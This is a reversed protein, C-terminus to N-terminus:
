RAVDPPRSFGLGAPQYPEVVRVPTGPEDLGLAQRLKHVMSVHIGTQFGGSFDVPLIDPEGHTCTAEIRERGTM